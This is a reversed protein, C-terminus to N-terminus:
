DAPRRGARRRRGADARTPQCPAREDGFSRGGLRSSRGVQAISNAVRRPWARTTSSTLRSTQGPSITPTIPSDPLPLVSVASDTRPRSGRRARSRPRRSGARRRTRDRVQGVRRSAPQAASRMAKMGCSARRARLGTRRTSSCTPSGQSCGDRPRRPLLRLRLRDLQQPGDMEPLGLLPRSSYGCWNEPPMCCRAMIAIPSPAPAPAASRRRASSPARRSPAPAPAAAAARSERCAM